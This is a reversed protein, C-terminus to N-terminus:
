RLHDVVNRKLSLEARSRVLLLWTTVTVNHTAGLLWGAGGGIATAWAAGVLAGTWSVRYGYLYQRLLGLPLGDPRFVVHIATLLFMSVGSTVGIAFGLARAHVRPLLRELSSVSRRGEIPM